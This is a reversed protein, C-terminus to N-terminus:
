VPTESKPRARQLAYRGDSETMARIPGTISRSVHSATAPSHCGPKFFM